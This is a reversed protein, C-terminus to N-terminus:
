LLKVLDTINKDAKVLRSIYESNSIGELTAKIKIFRVIEQELYVTLKMIESKQVQRAKKKDICQECYSNYGSKTKRYKEEDHIDDWKGELYHEVDYHQKCIHCRKKLTQATPDYYYTSAAREVYAPLTISQGDIEISLNKKNIQQIETMVTIV